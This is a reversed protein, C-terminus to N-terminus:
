VICSKDLEVFVNTGQEAAITSRHHGDTVKWVIDGLNEQTVFEDNMFMLGDDIDDQDIVSPFGLIPKDLTVMAMCEFTRYYDLSNEDMENDFASIIKHSHISQPIQIGNYTNM